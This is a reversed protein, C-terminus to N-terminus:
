HEKTPSVVATASLFIFGAFLEEEDVDDTVHVYRVNTNEEQGPGRNESL